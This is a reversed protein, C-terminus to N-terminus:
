PGRVRRRIGAAGQRGVVEPRGASGRGIGPRDAERVADQVAERVAEAGRLAAGADRERGTDGGLSVNPMNMVSVETLAWAKCHPVPRGQGCEGGARREGRRDDQLVGGVEVGQQAASHGAGAGDDEDGTVLRGGLRLGVLGGAGLDDDPLARQAFGARFGAQM